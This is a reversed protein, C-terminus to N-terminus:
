DQETICEEFSEGEHVSAFHSVIAGFPFPEPFPGRFESRFAGPPGVEHTIHAVCSANENPDGQQPAAVPAAILAAAAVLSAVGFLRKM